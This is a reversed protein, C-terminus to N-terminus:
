WALATTRRGTYVPSRAQNVTLINVSFNNGFAERLPLRRAEVKAAAARDLTANAIRKYDCLGGVVYVTDRRVDTLCEPADPSLVVVRPGGSASACGRASAGGAHERAAAAFDKASTLVPWRAACHDRALYREVDGTMSSFLLRAPKGRAGANAVAARARTERADRSTTTRATTDGGGGGGGCTTTTTAPDRRTADADRGEAATSGERNNEGAGASREAAATTTGRSVADATLNLVSAYSCQLQTVLSKMEADNMLHSMGCDVVVRVGGDGGDSWPATMDERVVRKIAEREHRRASKAWHETSNPDRTELAATKAARRRDRKRARREQWTHKSRYSAPAPTPAPAAAADAAAADRSPPEEPAAPSSWLGGM